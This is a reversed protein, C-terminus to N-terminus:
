QGEDENALWTRGHEKGVRVGAEKIDGMMTHNTFKISTGACAPIQLYLAHFAFSPNVGKVGSLRLARLRLFRLGYLGFDKVDM